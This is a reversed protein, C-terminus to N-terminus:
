SQNGNERGSDKYNTRTNPLVSAELNEQLGRAM